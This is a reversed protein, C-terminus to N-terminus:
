GADAFRAAVPGGPGGRHPLTGEVTRRGAADLPGAHALVTPSVTVMGVDHLLAALVAEAARGRLDPDQRVVRAMVQAVTLSHCAVARAVWAADPM